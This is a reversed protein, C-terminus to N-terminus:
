WFLPICDAVLHLYSHLSHAIGPCPIHPLSRRHLKGLHGHSDRLASIWGTDIAIFGLPAAFMWARMLWRQQTIKEQSLKGLLWYFVSGLMTRQSFGIGVMTRFSYYILGVLRPRDEPKWEKLGLVPESLKRKIGSHIRICQSNCNRIM